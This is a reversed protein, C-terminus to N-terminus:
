LMGKAITPPKVGVKRSHSTVFDNNKCIAYQEIPMAKNPSNEVKKIFSLTPFWNFLYSVVHPLSMVSPRYQVNNEGLVDLAKINEGEEVRNSEPISYYDRFNELIGTRNAAFIEKTFTELFKESTPYNIYNKVQNQYNQERTERYQKFCNLGNYREVYEDTAGIEPCPPVIDGVKFTPQLTTKYYQNSYLATM